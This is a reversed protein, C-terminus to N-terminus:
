CFHAFIAFFLGDAPQVVLTQESSMRRFRVVFRDIVHAIQQHSQKIQLFQHSLRISFSSARYCGTKDIGRVTGM